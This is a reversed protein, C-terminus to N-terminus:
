AQIKITNEVIRLFWDSNKSTIVSHRTTIWTFEIASHVLIWLHTSSKNTLSAITEKLILLNWSSLVM